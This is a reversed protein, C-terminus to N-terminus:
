SRKKGYEQIINLLENKNKILKEGLFEDYGKIETYYLLKVNHERCLNAKRKDREQRIAFGSEGGFYEIPKFHQKGQCEVALNYEPFYFDLHQHGIWEIDSKTAGNIYPIKNENFLTILENELISNQCFPCGHGRLLNNPTMPFWGHEKCYVQVKDNWGKYTSEDIIYKDGHVSKLDELFQKLPKRKNLFLKDMSCQKCGAGNLHTHFDQWFVGHIPCIIPIKDRKKKDPHNRNLTTVLSYDYFGNHKIASLEKVEEITYKHNAKGFLAKLDPM